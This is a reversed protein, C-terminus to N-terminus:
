TLKAAERAAAVAAARSHVGLREYIHEYHKRVTATSVFLAAAIETTGAGSALLALVEAQRRTLGLRLLAEPRVPCEEELVLVPGDFAGAPAERVTLCGRECTVTLPGRGPALASDPGRAGLWERVEVPLAAGSAGPFYARLLELAAGSAALVDGRGDLAVVETGSQRGAQELIAILTGMRAREVIQERARALHPALLDLLDRDRESFESRGRNMAVGIVMPGPLGFAIQDEAGIRRYLDNYLELAHFQRRNLFDSIKYTGVDGNAQVSILPHQHALRALAEGAFPQMPEPYTIVLAPEPPPGVENYGVLDCPVLRKLGPLIGTRFGDLDPLSHVEGVFELAARLDKASLQAM